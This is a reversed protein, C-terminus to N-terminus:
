SLYMEPVPEPNPVEEYDGPALNEFRTISPVFRVRVTGTPGNRQKAIILEAIGRDETKANYYEDRYIFVITDADQEIAGSERLDSLMPRKDKGGRTEVGRNLQSLAIIPVALEKALQKLGRSIESIEQERNQERGRRTRSGQMLQLYDIVVLGLTVGRRAFDARAKRALSRVQMLTLGPTDDLKIPLDALRAGAATLEVWEEHLLAGKRAKSLDIRAESCVMRQALQEKPMELSFVVVGEGPKSTPHKVTPVTPSAVNTAVNLVWSTKGMGPRAAVILLDGRHLGSTKKDFSVFRTAIGSVGDGREAAEHMAAFAGPLVAKLDETATEVQQHALAHLKTEAEDLYLQPTGIDGYGAAAFHQFLSIARRARAFDRVLKAHAVVNAVNPTADTLEALYKVSGARQILEKKRLWGAVTTVDVPSGDKHLAEIADWVLRHADSYFDEGGLVCAVDDVVPELMCASLVAAEAELSHPPVRGNLIPPEEVEDHRQQRGNM